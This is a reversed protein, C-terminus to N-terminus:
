SFMIDSNRRSYGILIGHYTDRQVYVALFISNLLFTGVHNFCHMEEYALSDVPLLQSDPLINLESALYKPCNHAFHISNERVPVRSDKSERWPNYDENEDDDSPTSPILSVFLKQLFDYLLLPTPVDKDFVQQKM